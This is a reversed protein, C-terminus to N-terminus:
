ALCTIECYEKLDVVIFIDAKKNQTNKSVM